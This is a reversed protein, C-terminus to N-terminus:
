AINHVEMWLEEPVRCILDLRKFRNTVKVTYDYPIQNLNCRFPRTIKGEKRLNFRFKGTLVEHDSSCEAGPRTKASQISHRQRWRTGQGPTM